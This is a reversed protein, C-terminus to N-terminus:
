RRKRKTSKTKAQGTSRKRIVRAKTEPAGDSLEWAQPHFHYGLEDALVDSEIAVGYRKEGGDVNTYAELCSCMEFFVAGASASLEGLTGAQQHHYLEEALKHLLPLSKMANVVYLQPM